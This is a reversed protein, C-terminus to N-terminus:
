ISVDTVRHVEELTTLGQSAKIFGDERMTMMGNVRAASIMKITSSNNLILNKIEEDVVIIESIVLQGKYGTHSCFDCGHTKAVKDPTNAEVLKNVNKLNTLVKDFEEKESTSIPEQTACKPCVRRVLRQAIITNLAPAVMFPPLGMNILRPITEIASNTHLTSLLVHGTLAAQASTQATELDRIEGIMIVDPDQRLISRLGSAFTYGRKEDIQSQTVGDVHYEVPDELTIIKSEPSKMSNLLSYLTTTKGSGTPGTCLIMGQSIGVANEMKKLSIGQFGLEAFTVPKEDSVLFRCVVSEGFPTPLVSVRVDTKRNNYSFDYRGDQPVNTINLQMQSKYKIQNLINRYSAPKIEFVRHLMGDIRFRVIVTKEEPEYHADSAGTKMAGINLINLGEEAPVTDLKASLQSLETIEKEYTKVSKQEVSDVLEIKTYQQTKQYMNLADEIGSASALNIDLEFGQGRLNDLVKKTEPEDLSTVALRIAKGNKYFPIIKTRIATDFDLVKLFDPNIPLRAVDVYGIGLKKANELVSKEQFERNIKGLNEHASGQNKKTDESDTTIQQSAKTQTDSM